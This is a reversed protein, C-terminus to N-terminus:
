FDISTKNKDLLAERWKGIALNTGFHIYANKFKTANTFSLVNETTIFGHFPGLKLSVGIGLRAWQAKSMGYSAGIQFVRGLSRQYSVTLSPLMMGNVFDTRLYGGFKNHTKYIYYADFCVKPNLWTTYANRTSDSFTFQEVLTDAVEGIIESNIRDDIFLRSLDFGRFVFEDNVMGSSFQQPNTNWRIFGIDLVSAGVALEDSFRYQGGFDMAFGRNKYLDSQNFNGEEDVVSAVNVDFESKATLFYNDPNTHLYFYSHQTNINAFGQLYKARAGININNTLNRQYGIATESFVSANIRFKKMELPRDEDMFAANGNILLSFLDKPYSFDINTRVSQSFTFFNEHIRFGFDLVTVRLDLSTLNNKSFSNLFGQQDVYLSDDSRRKIADGYAFPNQFNLKMSSFGPFGLYFKYPITFAPNNQNAQPVSHMHTLMRDQSFVSTVSIFILFVFIINKKM